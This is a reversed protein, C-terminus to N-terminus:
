CKGPPEFEWKEQGQFNSTLQCTLFGACQTCRMKLDLGIQGWARGHTMGSSEANVSDETTRLAKMPAALGVPCSCVMGSVVGLKLSVISGTVPYASV